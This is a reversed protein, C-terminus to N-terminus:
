GEKRLAKNKMRQVRELVSENSMRNHRREVKFPVLSQDQKTHLNRISGDYFPIWDEKTWGYEILM